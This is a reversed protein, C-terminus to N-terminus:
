APVRRRRADDVASLRAMVAQADAETAGENLTAGLIEYQEGCKCSDVVTKSKRRTHTCRYFDRLGISYMYVHEGVDHQCPTCATSAPIAIKPADTTFADVAGRGSNV